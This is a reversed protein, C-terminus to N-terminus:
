LRANWEQRGYKVDRLTVVQATEAPSLEGPVLRVDLSSALAGIIENAVHELAVSDGVVQELTTTVRPRSAVAAPRYESRLALLVEEMPVLSPQVLLTTHYLAACGRHAQAAGGIKQDGSYLGNDESRADVKLGALAEALVGGFFRFLSSVDALEPRKQLAVSLNLNGPYHYVTGGGSVRRLVPIRLENAREVDVEAAVSQSRGLVVAQQNVWLRITEINDNRVSDLLLDEIALGLSPECPTLDVLLRM